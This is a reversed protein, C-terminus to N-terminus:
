IGGMELKAGSVWASEDSLFYLVASAVDHPEGFGFPHLSKMRELSEPSITKETEDVMKTKVFTPAIVNSRIKKQSLELSLSKAYSELASKSATYIAGGFYALKTAISSVFVISAQNNIKKKNLLMSTLLVPAEFNIKMITNLHQQNIFNVPMHATIGASHVIGDLTPCETVLNVIDQFHYLDAAFILHGEGELQKFTENLRNEDRGTIIVKAGERSCVLATECGIGSSAGTILITKNLLKMDNLQNKM